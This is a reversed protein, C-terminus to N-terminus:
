DYAGDPYSLVKKFAPRPDKVEGNEGKCLVNCERCDVTQGIPTKEQFRFGEDDTDRSLRLLAYSRKGAYWVFDLIPLLVRSPIHM